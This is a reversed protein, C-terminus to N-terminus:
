RYIVDDQAAKAFSYIGNWVIEGTELDVLEFTIQVYREIMGTEVNIEDLTTMRGGLRYDAGLTAQTMEKTGLSVVGERKLTREKDIMPMYHRGIFIMRGQSARNLEVRLRDTILNKNIRVTGENIFYESDIIIRPPEKCAALRPNALMDRVMQDTMSIIDKSEIGAGTVKGKSAPDVYTTPTGPANELDYKKNCNIISTLILILFCLRRYKM